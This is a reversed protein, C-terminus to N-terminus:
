VGIMGYMRLLLIGFIAFVLMVLVYRDRRRQEVIMKIAHDQATRLGVVAASLREVKADLSYIAGRASEQRHMFEGRLSRMDHHLEAIYQLLSKIPRPEVDIVPEPLEDADHLPRPPRSSRPHRYGPRTDGDSM